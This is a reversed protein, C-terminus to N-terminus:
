NNYSSLPQRRVREGVLPSIIGMVLSNGYQHTITLAVVKRLVEWFKPASPEKIIIFACNGSSHVTRM